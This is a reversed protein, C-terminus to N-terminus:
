PMAELAGVIIMEIMEGGLITGKNKDREKFERFSIEVQRGVKTERGKFERISILVSTPIRTGVEKQLKQGNTNEQTILQCIYFSNLFLYEFIRTNNDDM